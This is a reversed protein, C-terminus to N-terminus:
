TLLNCSVFLFFVKGFGLYVGLPFSLSFSFVPFM